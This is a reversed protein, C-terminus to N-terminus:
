EAREVKVNYGLKSRDPVPLDAEIWYLADEGDSTEHENHEVGAKAIQDAWGAGGSALWGGEYDVSVAIRVRVTRQTTENM